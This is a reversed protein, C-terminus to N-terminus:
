NERLASMIPGKKGEGDLQTVTEAKLQVEEVTSTEWDLFPCDEIITNLKEEDIQNKDSDELVLDFLIHSKRVVTTWTRAMNDNVVTDGNTLDPPRGLAILSSATRM